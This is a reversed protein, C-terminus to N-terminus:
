ILRTWETLLIGPISWILQYLIVNLPTLLDTAGILVLTLMMAIGIIGGVMHVILGMTQASRLARAGAIGYALSAMTHQTSLVAAPVERDPELETLTSRQETSATLIRHAKVGFKSQIFNPTLLFDGDCILPSVQRYYCLAHLGHTATRTKDYSIAFLGSLVGDVAVCVATSVRMGEPIEIGMDRLFSLSGVVVQEGRVEGTIGGDHFQVNQASLHHCNRSELVQEFLPALGNDGALILATGYAVIEDPERNGFFKVGNMKVSGAPFLDQHTVPFCCAGKATGMGKWGCLLTGLKHFRKQLIDAPRSFCIFFSAPVAALLTVAAVQLGTSVGHLVLAVIGIILASALAGIAYWSRIKEPLSRTKYHDMFDEVEGEDRILVRKGDLTERAPRVATLNTAKRLVDMQRIETRRLHTTDFLSLVIQLTFAACCPVRLDQLCMFGDACCLIFSFILLTKLSFRGRILDALGEILQHSGLLASIFMALLQGFIMLKMRDAQVLGFHYLVTAGICLLAIIASIFMLVQLKGTGMETLKYYRHEPGSVLKKKLEKLRSQPHFQIPQPPVYDGMPQEYEPEWQESFPEAAEEAPAEAPTDEDEDVPQAGDYTSKPLSSLDMRITDQTFVPAPTEEAPVEEAPVEEAPVEETPVEEAAVEPAETIEAPEETVEAPEEAVDEPEEAVPEPEAVPEEAPKPPDRFEAIISELDFEEEPEAAHPIPELHLEEDLPKRHDM